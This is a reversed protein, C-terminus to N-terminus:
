MYSFKLMTDSFRKVILKAILVSKPKIISINISVINSALGVGHKKRKKWKKPWEAALDSAPGPKDKVPNEQQKEEM